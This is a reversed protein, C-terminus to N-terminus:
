WCRSTVRRSGSWGPSPCTPISPPWSSWTRMGACRAPGGCRSTAAPAGPFRGTAAWRPRCASRPPGGSRGGPTVARAASGGGPSHLQAPQPKRGEYLREVLQPGILYAFRDRSTPPARSRTGGSWRRPWTTTTGGGPRPAPAMGLGRQPQPTPSCWGPWGSAIPGTTVPRAAGTRTACSASPATPTAAPGAAWGRGSGSSPSAAGAAHAERPRGPAAWRRPGRSPSPRTSSGGAAAGRRASCPGPTRTPTGPRRSATCRPTCAPRVGGAAAKPPDHAVALLEGDTFPAAAWPQGAKFSALAREPGSLKVTDFGKLPRRRMAMTAIRALEAPSRDTPM